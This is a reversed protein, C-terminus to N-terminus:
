RMKTFVIKYSFTFFGKQLTSSFPNFQNIPAEQSEFNSRLQPFFFGLVSFDYAKHNPKRNEYFLIFLISVTLFVTM